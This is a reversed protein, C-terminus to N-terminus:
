QGLFVICDRFHHCIPPDIKRPHSFPHSFEPPDIPKKRILAEKENRIRQVMQIAIWYYEERLAKAVKQCGALIEPSPCEIRVDPRSQAVVYVWFEFACSSMMAHAITDADSKGDDLEKASRRLCGVYARLAARREEISAPDPRADRREKFAPDPTPPQTIQAVAQGTMEARDAVQYRPTVPRWIFSVDAGTAKM